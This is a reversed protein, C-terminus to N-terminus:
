NYIKLCWIFSVYAGGSSFWKNEWYFILFASVPNALTVYGDAVVQKYWIIWMINNLAFSAFLQIHIKIRTCQLSRFCVIRSCVLWSFLRFSVQFEFINNLFDSFGGFVGHLWYCITRQHIYSVSFLIPIWKSIGFITKINSWSRWYERLHHLQDLKQQIASSCVLIWEIFM